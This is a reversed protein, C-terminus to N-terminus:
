VHPSVSILSFVDQARPQPLPPLQVIFFNGGKKEVEAGVFFFFECCREERWFLSVEKNKRARAREEREELTGEDRLLSAGSRKKRGRLWKQKAKAPLPLLLSFLPRRRELHLFLCKERERERKEKLGQEGGKGERLRERFSRIGRTRWPGYLYTTRAKQRPFCCARAHGRLPAVPFPWHKREGVFARRRRRAHPQLPRRRAFTKGEGRRTGKDRRAEKKSLNRATFSSVHSKTGAANQTELPAQFPPLAPLFHLQIRLKM